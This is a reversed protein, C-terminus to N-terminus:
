LNDFEKQIADLKDQYISAINSMAFRFMQRVEEPQEDFYDKGFSIRGYKGFNVEPDSHALGEIEVREVGGKAIALFQNRIKGLQAAEEHLKKAKEYQESTM